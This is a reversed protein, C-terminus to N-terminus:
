GDSEERLLANEIGRKISFQIPALKRGYLEECYEAFTM